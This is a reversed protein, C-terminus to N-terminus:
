EGGEQIPDLKAGCLFCYEIPFADGSHTPYHIKCAWSISNAIYYMELKCRMRYSFHEFKKCEHRWERISINNLM